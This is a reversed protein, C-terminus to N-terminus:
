APIGIDWEDGCEKIWEDYGAEGLLMRLTQDIVWQKHHSGDIRGYQNVFDAVDAIAQNSDVIHLLEKDKNSLPLIDELRYQNFNGGHTTEAYLGANVQKMSRDVLKVFVQFKNPNNMPLAKIKIPEGFKYNKKVPM